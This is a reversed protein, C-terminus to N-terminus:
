IGTKVVNHVVCEVDLSRMDDDHTAVNATLTATATTGPALNDVSFDAGGLAQKDSARVISLTVEYKSSEATTNGNTVRYKYRVVGVVDNDPTLECADITVDDEGFTTTSSPSPAATSSDGGDYDENGDATADGGGSSSSGSGSSDGDDCGGGGSRRAGTLAVLVVVFVAISRAHRLKM